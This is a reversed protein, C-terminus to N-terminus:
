MINQLKRYTLPGVIGDPNLNNQLQWTVVAKRTAPGFIGDAKLGLAKQIKTVYPGRSGQALNTFSLNSNTGKQLLSLTKNWIFVRDKLGNVGGNVRKSLEVIDKNDCYSNLRNTDWFWCASHVAGKPTRVYESAQEISINIDKAFLQYNNKGTLQILGGGRYRWGDGSDVGGNGMRNAYVINAIKEPQRHYNDANRGARYFYKPFVQNLRASSYNLNESLRTYHASEHITQSMFGAIRYDTNIDYKNFYQDLLSYWSISDKNLLIDLQEKTLRM